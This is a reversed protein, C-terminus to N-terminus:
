VFFHRVSLPSGFVASNLISSTFGVRSTGCVSVPSELRALSRLFPSSRLYLFDVMLLSSEFRSHGFVSLASGLRTFSRLLPSSDVDIHGLVPISSGSTVRAFSPLSSGMHSFSRLFCCLAWALLASSRCRRNWGVCACYQRHSSM